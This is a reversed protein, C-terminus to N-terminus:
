QPEICILITGTVWQQRVFQGWRHSLLVLRESARVSRCTSHISSLLQGWGPDRMCTCSHLPHGPRHQAESAEECPGRHQSSEFLQLSCCSSGRLCSEGGEREPIELHDKRTTAEPYSSEKGQGSPEWLMVAGECFSCGEDALGPLRTTDKHGARHQPLGLPWGLIPTPIDGGGRSPVYCPQLLM